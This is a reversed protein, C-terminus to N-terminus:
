TRMWSRSFDSWSRALRDELEAADMGKVVATKELVRFIIDPMGEEHALWEYGGPNDTELLLRDPPIATAIAEIAPSCLIEVGITFWCGESLFADILETPGSYWHVLSGRLGFDRLADLIEREAGKTHLNMPVGRRRAWECQYEFVTRQAPYRDRNEVWHFDLGAEGIFPTAELFRDLRALDGVYRWAEWPHIGFTPIIWRNSEAIALTRQWSPVDMSVAVTVIEHSDIQELAAALSTTYRDIHAHADVMRAM